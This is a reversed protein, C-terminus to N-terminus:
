LYTLYAGHRERGMRDVNDLGREKASESVRRPHPYEFQKSITLAADTVQLLLECEVGATRGL